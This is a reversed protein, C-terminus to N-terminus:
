PLTVSHWGCWHVFPCVCLFCAAGTGAFMMTGTFTNNASITGTLVNKSMATTGILAGGDLIALGGGVVTEGGAQILLGGSITAGTDVVLQGSGIHCGGAYVLPSLSILLGAFVCDIPFQQSVTSPKWHLLPLLVM